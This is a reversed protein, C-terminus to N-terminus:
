FFFILKFIDSIERYFYILLDLELKFVSVINNNM